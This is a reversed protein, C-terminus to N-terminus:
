EDEGDVLQGKSNGLRGRREMLQLWYDYQLNTMNFKKKLVMSSLPTVSFETNTRELKGDSMDIVRDVDVKMFIGKIDRAKYGFVAGNTLNAFILENKM